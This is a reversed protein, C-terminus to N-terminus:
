QMGYDLGLKKQLSRNRWSVDRGKEWWRAGNEKTRPQLQGNTPTSVLLKSNTWSFSWESKEQGEMCGARGVLERFVVYKPLRSDEMRAVFGAFLIRRRRRIVEISESGSKM